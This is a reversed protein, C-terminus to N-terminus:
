LFISNLYEILKNDKVCGKIQSQFIGYKRSLRKGVMLCGEGNIVAGAYALRM